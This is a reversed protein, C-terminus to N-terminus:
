VCRNKINERVTITKPHEYGLIKELITLAKNSFYKAKDIDGLNHHAMGINSYTMATDSHEEDLIKEQMTAATYYFELAKPVDGASDYARGINNYATATDPHGDIFLANYIEVALDYYGVAKEYKKMNSYAMGMNHYSKAIDVNNENFLNNQMKLAKNHYKLAKENNGLGCYAVGINNYSKAIDTHEGDFIDNQIKLAQKYNELANEYQHLDNYMLGLNNYVAAIYRHTDGYAQECMELATTYLQLAKDRFGLVYFGMGIENYMRGAYGFIENHEMFAAASMQTINLAHPSETKFAELAYKDYRRWYFGSIIMLKLCNWLWGLYDDIHKQVVEQLLRHMYLVRKEDFISNSDIECSILSYRTLDRIIENTELDSAINMNPPEPLAKIGRIFTDVPIKDPAFYACMYFMQIASDQTIKDMSIKWTIKITSSYDVLYTKNDFVDIGYVEILDIYGQYTVDPTQEIYAAAQELALPLRQLRKALENALDDSFGIGSKKIRKKLFLLAESENFIDMNISTSFPFFSSRTTILVDGNITQPLYKELWSDFSGADANDYIFIWKKNNGLWKKVFLITEKPPTEDTIIKKKLGFERFANLATQETEANIWWITNYEKFYAYAYELAVSTKGVGGLGTVSQTLSVIDKQKFNDRISKLKEERGTFYPNRKHPLNNFPTDILAKISSQSQSLKDSIINKLINELIDACQFAVNASTVRYGYDSMSVGIIRHADAALSNIYEEFRMKDLRNLIATSNKKSIFRSGEFIRKRFDPKLNKLPNSEDGSHEMIKNTIVIIFDAETVEAGCFPYLAKVFQSFNM